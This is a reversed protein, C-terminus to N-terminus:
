GPHEMPWCTGADDLLVDKTQDVLRNHESHFIAHVATLGINENM